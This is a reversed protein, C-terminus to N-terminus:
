KLDFGKKGKDGKDKMNFIKARDGPNLGFKAGHKLIHDYAKQMVTFEARIQDHKNKFTNENKCIEMNSIYLDFSNALMSLELSDIDKIGMQSVHTKLLQFISEGRDTLFGRLDDFNQM